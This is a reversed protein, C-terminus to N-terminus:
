LCFVAYSIKVHSSNLRTSKRDAAAPHLMAHVFSRRELRAGQGLPEADPRHNVAQVEHYPRARYSSKEAGVTGALRGRHPQEQSQVPRSCANRQDAPPADFLPRYRGADDTSRFLTTYAFSDSFLT